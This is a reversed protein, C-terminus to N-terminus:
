HLEQDLSVTPLAMLDQHLKIFILEYFSLPIQLELVEMQSNLESKM